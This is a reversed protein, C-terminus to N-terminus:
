LVLDRGKLPWPVNFISYEHWYLPSERKLVNAKKLNAQWHPLQETNTLIAMIQETRMKLRTTAKFEIAGSEAIFRTHIEIGNTSKKLVWPATTETNGQQASIATFLFLIIHHTKNM